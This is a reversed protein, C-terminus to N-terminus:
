DRKAYKQMHCPSLSGKERAFFRASSRRIGARNGSYLGGRYLVGVRGVIIAGDDRGQRSWKGVKKDGGDSQSVEGKDFLPPM